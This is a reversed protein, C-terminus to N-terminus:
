FPDVTKAEIDSSNLISLLFEYGLTSQARYCLQGIIKDSPLRM